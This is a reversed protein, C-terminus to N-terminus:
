RSLQAATSSFEPWCFRRRSVAAAMAAYIWYLAMLPGSEQAQLLHKLIDRSSSTYDEEKRSRASFDSYFLLCFSEPYTSQRDDPLDLISPKRRPKGPRQTQNEIAPSASLGAPYQQWGAFGDFTCGYGEPRSNPQRGRSLPLSRSM